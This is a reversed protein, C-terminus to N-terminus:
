RRVPELTARVEESTLMPLPEDSVATLFGDRRELRIPVSLVEIELRDDRLELELERGATIGMAERIAKPIVLRGAADMTTRM